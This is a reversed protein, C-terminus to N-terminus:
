DFVGTSFYKEGSDPLIIVINQKQLHHKEIYQLAAKLVAGGSIGISIAELPVFAKTMAWADDSLVAEVDHVLSADYNEPIFGPSIGAIKHPSPEKGQLVQSEKPEVAIIKTQTDKEKFFRGLGTVTGGTGVGIFIYDIPNLDEYLEKATTLYHARPNNENDFQSPIIVKDNDEKLALTKAKSGNIGQDAPTLIVQAGYHKIVQIREKSVKEPMIIIVQLKFFAGVMALGIGTNGSTAEVIISQDDIIGDEMMQKIMQFAPRTKVNNGPNFSELKGYIHNNLQYAAEFQQLRVLPTHGITELINHYLSM